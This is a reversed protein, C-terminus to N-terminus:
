EHAAARARAFDFTNENFEPNDGAVAGTRYEEADTNATSTNNNHHSAM